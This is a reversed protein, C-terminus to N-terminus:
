KKERERQAKRQFKLTNKGTIQVIELVNGDPDTFSAQRGGWPEDHPEKIFNVGKDKLEKCTKDVDDVLFEVSPSTLEAREETKSKPILGIELNGCQFGVYSSYTYKKELGLTKEYFGASRKLDSVYFTICWVCKIM